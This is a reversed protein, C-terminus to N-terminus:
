KAQQQGGAVGGSLVRWADQTLGRQPACCVVLVVSVAGGAGGALGTMMTTMVM